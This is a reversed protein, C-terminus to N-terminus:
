RLRCVKVAENIYPCPLLTPGAARLIIWDAGTAALAAHRAADAQDPSHDNLNDLNKQATSGTVWALALDPAISAEGGDKSFDPVASREAIARFTQADEGPASIYDSDLAFLADNPTHDRAWLFAKVWANRSNSERLELHPSHAYATRQAIYMPICLLSIAIAWRMRSTKLFRDVVEAGLVITMLLYVTHFSRLPQLRAILHTPAGARAFIVALIVATTGLLVAAHAVAAASSRRKLRAYTALIALPAILGALEFWRWQAPYWYTRTLAAANAAPGEPPAFVHALFAAAVVAVCLAPGTWPRFQVAAVLLVAITAYLAMLPHMLFALGLSFSCLLTTRRRSRGRDGAIVAVALIGFGTSFSRATLYPDMLALATGAVPLSLWCALLSVAGLRASISDWTSAALLWAAFLTLWTTALHLVLLVAPLGLHSLRVFAAVTLAFGSLRTPEVVFPTDHPYLAPNLLRKIGALYLGGDDANPHYGHILVALVALIATVGAGLSARAPSSIRLKDVHVEAVATFTAM